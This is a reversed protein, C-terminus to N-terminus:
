KRAAALSLTAVESGTEAIEVSRGFLKPDLWQYSMAARKVAVVHLKATHRFANRGVIPALPSTAVRSLAAVTESLHMLAREPPFARHGDYALNAILSCTDTIGCREGIGNVSSSIWEAGAEIASLANAMSLGRDNHFHVEFPITPFERKLYGLQYRVEEPTLIGVTDSFCLRDAGAEVATRFALIIKDLPTRSADEV